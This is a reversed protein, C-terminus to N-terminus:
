RRRHQDKQLQTLLRRAELKSGATVSRSRNVEQLFPIARTPDHRHCIYLKAINLNADGDGQKAARRFWLLAQALKNRDRLICGINNAVSHDGNRYARHYWHLAANENAKVGDGQDYFQAVIGFAPIMGARAAALFYRFASRLRGRRWEEEARQYLENADNRNITTGQKRRKDSLLLKRVM